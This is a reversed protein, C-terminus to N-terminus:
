SDYSPEDECRVNLVVLVQLEPDTFRSDLVRAM